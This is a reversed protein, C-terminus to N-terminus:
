RTRAARARARRIYAAECEIAEAPTMGVRVTGPWNGSLISMTAAETDSTGYTRQEGTPAIYVLSIWGSARLNAITTAPHAWRTLADVDVVKALEPESAVQRLVARAAKRRAAKREFYVLSDKTMDLWVRGIDAVAGTTAALIRRACEDRTAQRLSAMTAPRVVPSSPAIKSRRAATALRSKALRGAELRALAAFARVGDWKVRALEIADAAIDGHDMALDSYRAALHALAVRRGREIEATTPTRYTM